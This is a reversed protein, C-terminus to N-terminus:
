PVETRRDWSDRVDLDRCAQVRGLVANIKVLKGTEKCLSARKFSGETHYCVSPENKQLFTKIPAEQSADSLVSTYYPLVRKSDDFVLCSEGKESRAPLGSPRTRPCIQHHSNM